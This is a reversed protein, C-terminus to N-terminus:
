RSFKLICYQSGYCIHSELDFHIDEGFEKAWVAYETSCIRSGIKRSLNERGSKIMANHWPCENIIIKFINEDNLKEVKFKFGELHLKTTFCELLADIGKDLNCFSKFKRAQIKPMVKWVEVDVDLAVEFGYKEEVKMFWLGDVTKYCRHFYEAIQEDTLKIMKKGM